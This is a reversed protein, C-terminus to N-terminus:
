LSSLLTAHLNASRRETAEEWCHWTTDFAITMTPMKYLYRMISIRTKYGESRRIIEVVNCRHRNVDSILVRVSSNVEKERQILDIVQKCDAQIHVRQLGLEQAFISLERTSGNSGIHKLMPPTTAVAMGIGPGYNVMRNQLDNILCAPLRKMRQLILHVTSSGRRQVNGFIVKDALATQSFPNMM